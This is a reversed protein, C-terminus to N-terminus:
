VYKGTCSPWLRRKAARSSIGAIMIITGLGAAIAVTLNSYFFYVVALVTLYPLGITGFLRRM